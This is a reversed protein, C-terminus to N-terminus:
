TEGMGEPLPKDGSPIPPLMSEDSASASRWNSIGQDVAVLSRIATGVDPTVSIPLSGTGTLRNGQVASGNNFMDVGFNPLPPNSFNPHNFLNFFDARIM